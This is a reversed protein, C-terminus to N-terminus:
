RNQDWRKMTLQGKDLEAITENEIWRERFSKISESKDEKEKKLIRVYELEIKNNM